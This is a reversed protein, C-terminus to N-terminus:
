TQLWPGNKIVWHSYKKLLLILGSTKCFKYLWTVGPKKKKLIFMNFKDPKNIIHLCLAIFRWLHKTYYSLKGKTIFFIM